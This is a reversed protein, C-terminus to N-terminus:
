VISVIVVKEGPVVGNPIVLSRDKRGGINTIISGPLANPPITMFYRVINTSGEIYETTKLEKYGDSYSFVPDMTKAASLTKPFHDSRRKSNQPRNQEEQTTPSFNSKNLVQSTISGRNGHGSGSGGGGGRVSKPTTSLRRQPRQTINEERKMPNTDEGDYMQLFQDLRPTRATPTSSASFSSPTSSGLDSPTDYNTQNESQFGVSKRRTSQLPSETMIAAPKRTSNPRRTTQGRMVAETDWRDDDFAQHNEFTNSSERTNSNYSDTYDNRSKQEYSFRGSSQRKPEKLQGDFKTASDLSPISMDDDSANNERNAILPYAMIPVTLGNNKDKSKPKQSSSMPNKSNMLPNNSMSVHEKSLSDSRM